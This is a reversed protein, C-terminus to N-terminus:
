CDFSVSVQLMVSVDMAFQMRTANPMFKADMVKTTKVSNTLRLVWAWWVTIALNTDVVWSTHVVFVHKKQFVELASDRSKM